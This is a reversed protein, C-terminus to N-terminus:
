HHNGVLWEEIQLYEWPQQAEALSREAWAAGQEPVQLVQQVPAWPARQGHAQQLVEPTLSANQCKCQMLRLTIQEYIIM